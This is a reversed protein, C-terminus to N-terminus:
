VGNPATSFSAIAHNRARNSDVEITPSQLQTCHSTSNLKQQTLLTEFLLLRPDQNRVPLLTAAQGSILGLALPLLTTTDIFHSQASPSAIMAQQQALQVLLGPNSLLLAMQYEMGIPQVPQTNSERQDQLFALLHSPQSIATNQNPATSYTPSVIPPVLTQVTEFGGKMTCEPPPTANASVSQPPSSSVPTARSSSVPSLPWKLSIADFDPEFNPYSALKSGEKSGYMYRCLHPLGRLMCEHYYCGKNRSNVLPKLGNSRLQSLFTSFLNHGFYRHLIKQEELQRPILIRFARGHPEWAIFTSYKPESLIHHLKEGFNMDEVASPAEYDDEGKVLSYDQYSHDMRIESPSCVQVVGAQASYNEHISEASKESKKKRKTVKAKLQRVRKSTNKEGGRRQRNPKKVPVMPFNPVAASNLGLLVKVAVAEDIDFM